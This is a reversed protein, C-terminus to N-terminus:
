HCGLSVGFLVQHLVRNRGLVFFITQLAVISTITGASLHLFSLAADSGALGNTIAWGGFAGGISLVFSLIILKYSINFM